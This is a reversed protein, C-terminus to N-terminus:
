SPWLKLRFVCLTYLVRNRRRDKFVEGLIVVFLFFFSFLFVFIFFSVSVSCHPKYNYYEEQNLFERNQRLSNMQRRSKGLCWVITRSCEGTRWKYDKYRQRAFLLSFFYFSINMPVSPFILFVFWLIDKIWASVVM